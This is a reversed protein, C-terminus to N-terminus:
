LLELKKAIIMTQVAKWEHEQIHGFMVEYEPISFAWRSNAETNDLAMREVEKFEQLLELKRSTILENKISDYAKLLEHITNV